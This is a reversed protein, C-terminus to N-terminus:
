SGWFDGTDAAALGEDGGGGRMTTSTEIVGVGCAFPWWRWTEDSSSPSMSSIGARIM